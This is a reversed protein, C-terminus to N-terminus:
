YFFLRYLNGYDTSVLPTDLCHFCYSWTAEERTYCQGTACGQFGQLLSRTETPEPTPLQSPLLDLRQVKNALSQASNRLNQCRQYAINSYCTFVLASGM